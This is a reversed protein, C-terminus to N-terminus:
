QDEGQEATLIDWKWTSFTAEPGHKELELPQIEHERRPCTDKEGLYGTKNKDLTLFSWIPVNLVGLPDGKPKNQDLLM